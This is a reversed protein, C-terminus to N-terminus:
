NRSFGSRGQNHVAEWYEIRNRGNRKAQYLAKDALGYFTELKDWPRVVTTAVGISVTVPGTAREFPPIQEVEARIDAAISLAGALDTEPLVMVFEEGGYRAAIDGPRKAHRGITQAVKRLAEDGGAHGHRENFAKFHDVDIMLLSLPKGSRRARLWEADVAEDLQRRNPLETLGDTAALKALETEAHHRRRLERRLLLTLWLMGICLAGTAGGVLAANRTWVAYVQETSQSIVLVLPLNGVRSFAYFRDDQFQESFASFSGNGERLIRQFNPTRAYDKGTLDQGDIDPYRVVLIGQTNLLAIGSDPGLMQSMFLQKFYVLRMAASVIGKFEGDPGELRRSFNICWDKFGWRTKYPASVHLGLTPNAKHAQFYLRDSFNDHRPPIFMSDISVDGREDLLVLDGKYSAAKFRDFYLYQQLEPALRAVDPRQWAKIMGLLSSDYLEANRMVDANILQLINSANRAATQAADTRERALLWAVICLIALVSLSSGRILLSESRTMRFITTRRAAPSTM